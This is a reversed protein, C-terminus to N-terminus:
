DSSAALLLVLIPLIPLVLVGYALILNKLQEWSNIYFALGALSTFGILTGATAVHKFLPEKHGFLGLLNAVSGVLFLCTLLNEAQLM